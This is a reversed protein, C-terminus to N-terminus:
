RDALPRLQLGYPQYMAPVLTLVPRGTPWAKSPLAAHVVHAVAPTVNGAIREGILLTSELDFPVEEIAGIQKIHRALGPHQVTATYIAQTPAFVHRTRRHPMTHVLQAPLRGGSAFVGLATHDLVVATPRTTDTGGPYQLAELEQWLEEGPTQEDRDGFDKVLFSRLYAAIRDRSQSVKTNSRAERLVRTLTDNISEGPEALELTRKKTAQAIRVTTTGAQGAHDDAPATALM